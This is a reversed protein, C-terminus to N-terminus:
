KEGEPADGIETSPYVRFGLVRFRPADCAFRALAVPPAVVDASADAAPVATACGGGDDCADRPTRRSRPPSPERKVSPLSSSPSPVSTGVLRSHM